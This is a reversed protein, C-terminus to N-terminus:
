LSQRRLEACKYATWQRELIPMLRGRAGSVEDSLRSLDRAGHQLAAILNRRQQEIESDIAAIDRPDIPENPNYRFNGEHYHRWNTLEFTLSPGFGPIQIVKAHTVDAATEIGYSALMAIRGPGIGPIKRGDIRFRDLYRDRQRNQHDARLKALKQNRETPLHLLRNKKQTLEKIRAEFSEGSAERKWLALASEWETRATKLEQEAKNLVESSVRPWVAFAAIYSLITISLYNGKKSASCAVVGVLLLSVGIALRLNKLFQSPLDLDSPPTWPRESPITPAPTPPRISTIARWLVDVNVTGTVGAHIIRNGFLRVGSESEVKCWPCDALSNLYHHRSVKGCIRLNGKLNEIAQVWMEASPREGITSNAEFARIFYQSVIDGMAELPVTAPPREMNHLARNPGYAFRREAVAREIPMDGRGLYRGAFPHRGMYLLHFLMVALGFRDHNITRKIGRFSGGHLEPPLFLPVGVDCTFLQTGQQIQFSDCDILMVTADPGVLLNGHNVDGVVHGERHVTAFARAINAGSHLLFRFDADPFSEARGKPSYLDHIEKRAAVLPMIFGKATGHSDELVDVPWAAVQLISPNAMETMAILKNIKPRDPPTSYIKAVRSNDGEIAFVKGEGGSGLEIGLRIRKQSKSLRLEM